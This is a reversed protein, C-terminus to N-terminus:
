RPRQLDAALAVASDAAIRALAEAAARQYADVIAGMRNAAAAHRAGADLTVLVRRDGATGLRAIFHAYVTPADGAAAYEAQFDTVQVELWYGGPFASNEATVNRFRGATAFAQVVLDQVVHDLPGSWRADAFYDLRRDPYLAAIRETDLGTRVRPRLVTLDAALAPAAGAAPPLEASLLYTAPPAIRSQFLSGSCGGTTAILMSLAAVRRAAAVRGPRLASM